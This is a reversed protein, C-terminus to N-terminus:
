SDSGTPKLIAACTVDCLLMEDTLQLPAHLDKQASDFPESKNAIILSITEVVHGSREM